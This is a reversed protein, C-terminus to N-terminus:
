EPQDLLDKVRSALEDFTRASISDPNSLVIPRGENGGEQVPMEMPIKALLSTSNEKSLIEKEEM